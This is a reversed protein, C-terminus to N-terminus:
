LHPFFATWNVSEYASSPQARLVVFGECVMYLRSFCYLVAIMTVPILGKLPVDLDPNKNPSSNRLLQAIRHVRARFKSKFPLPQSQSQERQREIDEPLGSSPSSITQVINNEKKTFCLRSGAVAAAAVRRRKLVPHIHFVYAETTWYIVISIIIYVSSIRWLVRETRTPFHFNWGSIHVAAFAMEVLVSIPIMGDIDPFRDNPITDIPRKRTHFRLGMRALINLWYRWYLFFSSQDNGLFDMPTQDYPRAACPGAEILIDAMTTKPVLIIPLTVDLPKQAWCLCIGLTCVIYGCATLELTTIALGRIARAITNISFWLIQFVIILRSLGDSKNKDDIHEAGIEVHSFDVYGREVLYHLQKANLPFPVFDRPHLHYGGMDAFFAHSISWQLYGSDQFARVSRRASAWEGLATQFVFEPGIMGECFVGMKRSLRYLKSSGQPPINLCIVSWSCLFITLGCSWVIDSTGRGSPSPTWGQTSVTGNDM